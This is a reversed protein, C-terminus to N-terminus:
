LRSVHGDAFLVNKTKGASSLHVNDYDYLLPVTTTPMAKAAGPIGSPDPIVLGEIQQGNFSHNWEYSCGEDAFRKAEDKPCKFVAKTTMASGVYNTLVDCIRPLIRNPDFPMTPLREAAPLRNNHEGVYMMVGLGLQHLNNQCELSRARQNARSLAPLLMAALIGIVAVVVLLEILTFARLATPTPESAM